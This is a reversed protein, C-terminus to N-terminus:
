ALPLAGVSKSPCPELTIDLNERFYKDVYKNEQQANKVHWISGLDAKNKCDDSLPIYVLKNHDYM